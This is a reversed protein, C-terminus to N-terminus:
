NNGLMFRRFVVLAGVFQVNPTEKTYLRVHNHDHCPRLTADDIWTVNDLNMHPVM